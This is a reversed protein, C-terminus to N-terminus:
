AEHTNIGLLQKKKLLRMDKREFRKSADNECINERTKEKCSKQNTEKCSEQGENYYTTSRRCGTLTM